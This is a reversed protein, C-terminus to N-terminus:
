KSDKIFEEYDYVKIELKEKMAMSSSIPAVAYIPNYGDLIKAIRKGDSDTAFKGTAKTKYVEGNKYELIEFIEVYKFAEYGNIKLLRM